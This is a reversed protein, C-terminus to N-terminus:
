RNMLDFYEDFSYVRYRTKAETKRLIDLEEFKSVIANASGFSFGLEKCLLNVTIVPKQFLFDVVALANKSGRAYADVVKARERRQLNIIDRSCATANQSVEQVGRLFFEIWREFDGDTRVAQLRSYYEPKHKTFFYSLYLVPRHLINNMMLEFTILLRGMRGNGDLFPHITEFQSHVLGVRILTPLPIDATMFAELNRLAKHMDEVAPPIYIADTMKCGKPGIWNQIDRLEGPRKDHGRVGKMLEIHIRQILDISMPTKNRIMKLGIDMARIYNMVESVDSNSDPRLATAEAQLVDELSAETGEIQSSLVAEKRIYMAVFLDPNPLTETIGDLRALAM